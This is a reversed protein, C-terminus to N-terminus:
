PLRLAWTGAPVAPGWAPSTSAPPEGPTAFYRELGSRFEATAKKITACRARPLRGAPLHKTTVAAATRLWKAARSTGERRQLRRRVVIGQSARRPTEIIRRIVGVASGRRSRVKGSHFRGVCQRSGIAITELPGQIEGLPLDRCGDGARRIVKRNISHAAPPPVAALRPGIPGATEKGAHHPLKERTM